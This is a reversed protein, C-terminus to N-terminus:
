RAARLAEALQDIRTDFMEDTVSRLDSYFRTSAFEPLPVDDIVVPIFLQGTEISRQMLLYYENTVWGSAMSDMSFVLLGHSSDRIAQEVGHLLPTGPRLVVEDLAVRIGRQQLRAVVEKVVVADTHSYSVFVDYVVADTEPASPIPQRPASTATQLTSTVTRRARRRSLQNRVPVWAFFAGAIGALTGILTLTLAM